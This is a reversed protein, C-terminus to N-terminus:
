TYMSKVKELKEEVQHLEKTVKYMQSVADEAKGLAEDRDNRMIELDTQLQILRSDKDSACM